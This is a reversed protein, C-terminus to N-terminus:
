NQSEISLDFFFLQYTKKDLVREHINKDPKSMHKLLVKLKWDSDYVQLPFAMILSEIFKKEYEPNHICHEDFNIRERDMSKYRFIAGASKTQGDNELEPNKEPQDIIVSKYGEVKEEINMALHYRWLSIVIKKDEHKSVFYYIYVSQQMWTRAHTTYCSFSEADSLYIRKVHRVKDENDTVKGGMKNTATTLRHIDIIQRNTKETLGSVVFYYKPHDFEDLM